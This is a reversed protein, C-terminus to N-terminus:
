GAKKSDFGILKPTKAARNQTQWYFILAVIVGLNIAALVWLPALDKVYLYPFYSLLTTLQLVFPIVLLRPRACILPISFLAAAYFYREHMRPLLFPLVMLSIMALEIMHERTLQDRQKWGLWLYILSGTGALFFGIWEWQAMRIDPFFAFFSPANWTLVPFLDSQRFYVTLVSLFPQGGFAAPLILLVFIVPPLLVWKWPIKQVLFLLLLFPGFFVAQFKFSLALSFMVMGWFPKEKLLFYLSLLLFATLISDNQGWWASNVWVTPALAAALAATWSTIKSQFIRAIKYVALVCIGDFLISFFKIALVKPISPFRSALFLLYLFPPSVNSFSTGVPTAFGKGIAFNDYWGFLYSSLDDTVMQLGRLRAYVALGLSLVIIVIGINKGKRSSFFDEMRNWHKKLLSGSETM